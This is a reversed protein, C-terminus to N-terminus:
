SCILAWTAWVLFLLTAMVLDNRSAAQLNSLRLVSRDIQASAESCARALSAEPVDEKAAAVLQDVTVTSREIPGVLTIPAVLSMLAYMGSLVLIVRQPSSADTWTLSIAVAIAATVIASVTALGPGKGEISELREESRELLRQQEEFAWATEPLQPLELGTDGLFRHNVYLAVPLPILHQGLRWFAWSFPRKAKSLLSHLAAKAPM